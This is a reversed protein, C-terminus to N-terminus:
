DDKTEEKEEEKKVEEKKVEKTEDQAADFKKQTSPGPAFGKEKLAAFIKEDHPKYLPELFEWLFVAGLFNPHILWLFFLAEFEQFLPIYETVYILLLDHIQKYLVYIIWYVLWQTKAYGQENKKLTVVTHYTPYVYMVGFGILFIYPVISLM